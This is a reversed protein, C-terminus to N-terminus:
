TDVATIGNIRVTSDVSDIMYWVHLVQQRGFEDFATYSYDRDIAGIDSTDNVTIARVFATIRPRCGNQSETSLVPVHLSKPVVGLQITLFIM